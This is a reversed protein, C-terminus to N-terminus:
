NINHAVIESFFNSRPSDHFIQLTILIIKRNREPITINFTELKQFESRNADALFASGLQGEMLPQRRLAFHGCIYLRCVIIFFLRCQLGNESEKRTQVKPFDVTWAVINLANLYTGWIGYKAYKAMIQRM